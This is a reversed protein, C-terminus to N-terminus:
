AKFFGMVRSLLGRRSAKEAELQKVMRNYRRTEAAEAQADKRGEM